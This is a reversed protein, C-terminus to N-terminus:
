RRVCIRGYGQQPQIALSGWILLLNLILLFPIALPSVSHGTPGPDAIAYDTLLGNLFQTNLRTPNTQDHPRMRRASQRCRPIDHCHSQWRTAHDCSASSLGNRHVGPAHGGRDAIADAVGPQVRCRPDSLAEARQRPRAVLGSAHRRSRPDPRSSLRCLAAPSLAGLQVLGRAIREPDEVAINIM